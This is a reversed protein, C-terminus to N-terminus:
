IIQISSQENQKKNKYFTLTEEETKHKMMQLLCSVTTNYENGWDTLIMRKGDFNIWRNKRTNGGQQKPTAWRCNSPEYNGNMDPFRDLSHKKSPKKGMDKIFCLFGKKGLWRECVTIGRAGYNYYDDNNKNFCRSKMSVYSFYEPTGKAGHVLSITKRTAKYWCGCSKTNGNKLHASVVKTEDGCECKCLWETKGLNNSGIYSVVTLKNYKCGIMSMDVKPM